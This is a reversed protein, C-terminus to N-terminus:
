SPDAPQHRRQKRLRRCRKREGGVVLEDDAEDVRAGVPVLSRRAAEKLERTFAAVYRPQDIASRRVHSNFDCYPCKAACFPWHIYVGFGPAAPTKAFPLVGAALHPSMLNM